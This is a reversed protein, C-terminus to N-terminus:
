NQGTNRKNVSKSNTLKMNDPRSVTPLKNQPHLFLIAYIKVQGHASPVVNVGM